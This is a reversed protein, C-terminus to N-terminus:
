QEPFRFGPTAEDVRVSWEVQKKPGDADQLAETVALMHDEPSLDLEYERAAQVTDPTYQKLPVLQKLTLTTTVLVHPENPDEEPETGKIKPEAVIRTRRGNYNGTGSSFLEM